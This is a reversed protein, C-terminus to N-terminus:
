LYMKITKIYKNTTDVIHEESQLNAGCNKCFM